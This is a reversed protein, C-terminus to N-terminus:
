GSKFVKGSYEKGAIVFQIVYIGGPPKKRFEYEWSNKGAVVPVLKRDLFKGDAYFVSILGSGEAVANYTVTFKSQNPDSFIRFHEENSIASTEKGKILAAAPPKEGPLSLWIITAALAILILLYLLKSM